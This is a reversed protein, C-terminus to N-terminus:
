KLLGSLIIGIAVAHFYSIIIAQVTVPRIIIYNNYFCAIMIITFVFNSDLKIQLQYTYSGHM